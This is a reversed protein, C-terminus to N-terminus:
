KFGHELKSLKGTVTDGTGGGTVRDPVRHPLAHPPVVEALQQPTGPMQGESRM